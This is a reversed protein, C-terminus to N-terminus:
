ASALSQVRSSPADSSVDPDPLPDVAMAREYTAITFAGSREEDSAGPAQVIGDLSVFTNVALRCM